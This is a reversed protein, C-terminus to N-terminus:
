KLYVIRKTITGNGSAEAGSLSRNDIRARVLYIRSGINEDPQWVFEYPLVGTHERSPFARLSEGVTINDVMRGNLDFIEIQLSAVNQTEVLADITIKVASNFPNPHASIEFIHPFNFLNSEGISTTDLIERRVALGSSMVGGSISSSGSIVVDGNECLCMGKGQEFTDPSGLTYSDLSDGLSDILFYLFDDYGPCDLRGTLAYKDPPVQIIDMFKQVGSFYKEWLVNGLTDLRVIWSGRGCAIYGGNYAQTIDELWYSTLYSNTRITDGHQDIRVYYSTCLPAYIYFCISIIGSSDCCVGHPIFAEEMPISLEWDPTWDPPSVKIVHLNERPLSSSYGWCTFIFGSDPTTAIGAAQTHIDYRDYIWYNITDADIDYISFFSSNALDWGGAGAIGIIGDCSIDVEQAYFPPTNTFVRTEIIEGLSDTQLFWLSDNSRGVFLLRNEELEIVDAFGRYFGTTPM